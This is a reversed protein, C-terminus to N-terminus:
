RLYEIWILQILNIWIYSAIATTMYKRFLLKTYLSGLSKCINGPWKHVSWCVGIRNDIAILLLKLTLSKHCYVSAAVDLWIYHFEIHGIVSINYLSFLCASVCERMWAIVIRYLSCFLHRVDQQQCFLNFDFLIGNSITWSRIYIWNSWTILQIIILIIKILIVLIACYMIAYECVCVFMYTQLCVCVCAHIGYYNKANYFNDFMKM